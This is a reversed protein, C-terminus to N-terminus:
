ASLPLHSPVSLAEQYEYSSAYFCLALQNVFQTSIAQSYVVYLPTTLETASTPAERTASISSNYLSNLVLSIAVVYHLEISPLETSKSFAVSLSYSQDPLHVVSHATTGSRVYSFVLFSSGRTLVISSPNGSSLFVLEGIIIKM